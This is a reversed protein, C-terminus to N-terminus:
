LSRDDAHEEEEKHGVTERGMQDVVLGHRAICIPRKIILSIKKM